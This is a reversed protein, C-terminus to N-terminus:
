CSGSFSLDPLYERLNTVDSRTRFVRNRHGSVRIGQTIRIWTGPLAPETDSRPQLCRGCLYFVWGVRLLGRHRTRRLMAATQFTCWEDRYGCVLAVVGFVSPVRDEPSLYSFMVSQEHDTGRM